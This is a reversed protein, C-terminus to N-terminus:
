TTFSQLGDKEYKTKNFAAANEIEQTLPVLEPTQNYLQINDTKWLKKRLPVRHDAINQKSM